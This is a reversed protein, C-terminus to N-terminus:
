TIGTGYIDKNLIMTRKLKMEKKKCIIIMNNIDNQQFPKVSKRGFNIRYKRAM